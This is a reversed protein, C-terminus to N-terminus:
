YKWFVSRVVKLRNLRNGKSSSKKIQGTLSLVYGSDVLEYTFSVEFVCESDNIHDWRTKLQDSQAWIIPCFHTGVYERKKEGM